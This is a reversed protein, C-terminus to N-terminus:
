TPSLEKSQLSPVMPPAEVVCRRFPDEACPQERLIISYDFNKGTLASRVALGIAQGIVPPVANGVQRASSDKGGIFTWWDPFGQLRARMRLTLQPLFADGARDAQEQTPAADAVTTIDLGKSAWRVAEKERAGGKRGVITSALQGRREVGDRVVITSRRAEAWAKAGNWGNAAMLDELVDGLNSRWEPFTPPARFAAMADSKMGVFLIRTREQALGYDEAEMRIIQISYGSSRFHRLVNGVHDSHRAHLLGAVNEFVFATPRIEDVVRACELLLDRPDNKGLGKGDVSYPQCPPGGVVLDIREKRYPTFDIKRIDGEVVNWLPRNQRVTAAANKDFEFLAVPEFGAAELGVSMGGAGACLEVVKLRLVPIETLPKGRSPFVDGWKPPISSTMPHLCEVVDTSIATFRTSNDLAFFGHKDGPPGETLARIAAHALAVHRTDSTVPQKLIDTLSQDYRGFVAEFRPLTELAKARLKEQLAERGELKTGLSHLQDLLVMLEAIRHDVDNVALTARRRAILSSKKFGAKTWQAVYSLKNKRFYTRLASVDKSGLTAGARMRALAENRTEDDAGALAKLMPFQVRAERLMEESGKLTKAVKVFTGAEVLDMECGAHLFHTVEKPSLHGLLEEVEEAMKFLRDSIQQQLSRIARKANKLAENKLDSM